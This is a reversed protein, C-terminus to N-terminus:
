MKRLGTEGDGGRGDTDCCRDHSAWHSLDPPLSSVRIQCSLSCSIVWPYSVTRSCSVIQSRGALQPPPTTTTTPDAQTSSYTHKTALPSGRKSAGIVGLCCKDSHGLSLQGGGGWSGAQSSAVALVWGVRGVNHLRPTSPHTGMLVWANGSCLVSVQETPVWSVTSM